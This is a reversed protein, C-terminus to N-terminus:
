PVVSPLPSTPTVDPAQIRESQLTFTQSSGDPVRVDGEQIDTCKWNGPQRPAASFDIKYRYYVNPEVPFELKQGAEVTGRQEVGTNSHTLTVPIGGCQSDNVFIVRPRPDIALASLTLAAGVIAVLVASILYIAMNQTSNYQKTRARILLLVLAVLGILLISAAGMVRFAAM